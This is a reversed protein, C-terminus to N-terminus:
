GCRVGCTPLDAGPHEVQCRLGRRLPRHAVGVIQGSPAHPHAASQGARLQGRRDRARLIIGVVLQRLPARRLHRVVGIAARERVARVAVDPVRAVPQNRSAASRGSAAVSGSPNSQM